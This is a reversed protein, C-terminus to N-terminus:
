FTDVQPLRKAIYYFNKWFERPLGLEKGFKREFDWGEKKLQCIIAGLRLMKNEIAWFNDVRGFEKLHNIVRQKQTGKRFTFDLQTMNSIVPSQSM